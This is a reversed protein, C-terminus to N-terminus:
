DDGFDFNFTPLEFGSDNDQRSKEYYSQQGCPYMCILTLAALGFFIIGAYWTAIINEKKICRNSNHKKYWYIPQDIKYKKLVKKAESKYKFSLGDVFYECTKNNQDIAYLYPHYCTYHGTKSNGCEYKSNLVAKDYIHGHFEELRPPCFPTVALNCGTFFCPIAIILFVFFTSLSM